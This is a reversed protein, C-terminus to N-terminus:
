KLELNWFMEARNFLKQIDEQTKKQLLIKKMKDDLANENLPNGHRDAAYSRHEYLQEGDSEQYGIYLEIEYNYINNKLDPTIHLMHSEFGLYGISLNFVNWPFAQFGVLYQEGNDLFVNYLEDGRGHDIHLYEYNNSVFRSTINQWKLQWLLCFISVSLFVAVFFINFM